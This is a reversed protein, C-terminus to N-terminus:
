NYHKKSLYKILLKELFMKLSFVKIISQTSVSDFEENRM